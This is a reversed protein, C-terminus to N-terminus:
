VANFLRCESSFSYTIHCKHSLINFLVYLHLLIHKGIPLSAVLSGCIDIRETNHITNTYTAPPPIYM